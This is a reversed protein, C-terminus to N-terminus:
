STREQEQRCMRESLKRLLLDAITFKCKFLWFFLHGDFVNDVEIHGAYMEAKEALAKLTNQDLNPIRSVVYDKRLKM